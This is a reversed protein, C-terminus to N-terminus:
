MLDSLESSIVIIFLSNCVIFIVHESGSKKINPKDEYRDKMNNNSWSRNKDNKGKVKVEGKENSDKLIILLFIM